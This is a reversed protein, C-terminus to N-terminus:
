FLSGNYRPVSQRANWAHWTDWRERSQRVNWEQATLYEGTDKYLYKKEECCKSLSLCIGMKIIRLKFYLLDNFDSEYMEACEEEDTGDGNLVPFLREGLYKYAYIKMLKAIKSRESVQIEIEKSSM